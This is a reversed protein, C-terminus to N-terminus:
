GDAGFLNLVPLPLSRARTAIRVVANVFWPPECDVNCGTAVSVTHLGRRRRLRQIIGAWPLV